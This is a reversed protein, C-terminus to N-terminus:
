LTVSKSTTSLVIVSPTPPVAEAFLPPPITTSPAFALNVHPLEAARQVIFLDKCNESVAVVVFWAIPTNQGPKSLSAM